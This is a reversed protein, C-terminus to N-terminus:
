KLVKDIFPPMEQLLTQYVLVKTDKSQAQERLEAAETQLEEILSTM